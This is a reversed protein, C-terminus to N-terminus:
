CRPWRCSWSSGHTLGGLVILVLAAVLVTIIQRTRTEHKAPHGEM